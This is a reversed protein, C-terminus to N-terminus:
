NATEFLPDAMGFYVWALLAHAYLWTSQAVNGFTLKDLQKSGKGGLSHLPILVTWTLLLGVCCIVCLVKLYRLFLFGDLSSLNLIDTDPTKFFPIIWNFYGTPLPKSRESCHNADLAQFSYSVGVSARSQQPLNETFLSTCMESAPCPIHHHVGCCLSRCSNSNCIISRFFGLKYSSYSEVGEECQYLDFQRPFFWSSPRQECGAWSTLEWRDCM